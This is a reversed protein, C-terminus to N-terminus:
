KGCSGGCSGICCEEKRDRNRSGNGAALIDDIRQDIESPSALCKINSISHDSDDLQEEKKNRNKIWRSLTLLDISISIREENGPPRDELM